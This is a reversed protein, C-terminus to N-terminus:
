NGASLTTERIGISNKWLLRLPAITQPFPPELPALWAACSAVKPQQIARFEAVLRSIPQLQNLAIARSM